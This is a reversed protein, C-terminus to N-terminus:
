PAPRRRRAAPPRRASRATAAAWALRPPAAASSRAGGPAAGAPFFLPGARLPGLVRLLRILRVQQLLPQAPRLHVDPGRGALLGSAGEHLSEGQVGVRMQM